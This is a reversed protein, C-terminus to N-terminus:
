PRIGLRTLLHVFGNEAIDNARERAVAWGAETKPTAFSVDIEIAMYGQRCEVRAYASFLGVYREALDPRTVIYAADRGSPSQEKRVSYAPSLTAFNSQIWEGCSQGAPTAAYAAVHALGVADPETAQASPTLSLTAFVSAIRALDRGRM